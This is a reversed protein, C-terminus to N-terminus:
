DQYSWGFDWDSAGPDNEVHVTFQTATANSVWITGVDNTPDELGIIRIKALTPTVSLGHTVVYSTTTMTATGSAETVWGKNNRIINGSGGNLIAATANGNFYCSSVINNDAGVEFVIGYRQTGRSWDVCMCGTFINSDGTVYFGDFTNAASQSNNYVSAGIFSNRYGSIQAGSDDNTESIFKYYTNDHAGPQQYYSTGANDYTHTLNFICAQSNDSVGYSGNSMSFISDLYSDAIYNLSVGVAGALRSDINRIVADYTYTASTSTFVLNDQKFDEIILNELRPMWSYGYVIIGNGSANNAKNGILRLDRIVCKSANESIVVANCDSGNSVYIVTAIGQGALEVAKPTAPLTITNTINFYGTSLSVVGGAAPLADIAAQIQVDDAIGDAVWNAKAKENAPATSSAVYYTAGSPAGVLYDVNWVRDVITDGNVTLYGADTRFDKFVWGTQAGVSFLPTAGDHAFYTSKGSGEIVVNNIARSVIAGFNFNGGFIIVKGGTAPLADIALQIQVNDDTGDCIYDPTAAYAEGAMGVSLIVKKVADSSVHNLAPIGVSVALFMAVAIFLTRVGILKLLKM